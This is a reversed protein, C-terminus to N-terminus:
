TEGRRQVHENIAVLEPNIRLYEIIDNCTFLQGDSGFHEIINKLLFYDEREDLTICLEPWQNSKTAIMDIVSFLQPNQRIHLTVHERDLPERTLGESRKLASVSYLQSGMGDPLGGRGNFIYDVDNNIFTSVIQEVLEPDILPCDGTVECIIDANFNEAAALVRGMVDDESGRFISVNNLECFEVFVDDPKNITTAIIIEDISSVMKLRDILHGIMPRGLVKLFHKGPLRSSTSRACVIGVVKKMALNPGM